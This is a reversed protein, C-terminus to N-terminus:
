LGIIDVQSCAYISEWFVHIANYPYQRRDSQMFSLMTAFIEVMMTVFSSTLRQNKYKEKQLNLAM